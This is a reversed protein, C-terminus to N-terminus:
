ADEDSRVVLVSTKAHRAVRAANPGLLYNEPGPSAATLVVLDAKTVEAYHLIQRYISGHGVIHRHPIEAPVTDATFEKLLKLAHDMLGREHGEPFFSGVMSLGYNPMVTLVHLTAGHHRAETVATEIAKREGDGADLDIAVLINQYM